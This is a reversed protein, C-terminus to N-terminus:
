TKNNFKKLTNKSFTLLQDITLDRKVKNALDSIIEINGKIYGMSNDIRDVSPNSDLRGSGVIQTIKIGLYPCIDPIIIDEIELNFDLNKRKATSKVRLLMNLRFNNVRFKESALRTYEKSMKPYQRVYGKCDKCAYHVGQSGYKSLRFESIPLWKKCCECEKHGIIKRKIPQVIKNNKVQYIYM